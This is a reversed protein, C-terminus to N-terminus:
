SSAEAVLVSTIHGCGLEPRDPDEQEIIV